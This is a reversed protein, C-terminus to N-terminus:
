RCVAARPRSCGARSWDGRRRREPVAGDAPGALRAHHQALVPLRHPVVPLVASPGAHPLRHGHRGPRARRHDPRARAAPRTRGAATRRAAGGRESAREGNEGTAARLRRRPSGGGGTLQNRQDAPVDSTAAHHSLQLARIYAIIRWRDEVPVQSRYDPMAGFGNTIVDFFYGVPLNRLRDTHYNAAQRFGRQVVMGNGEGTRGHCPSCFINYREEGRDLDAKTIPFPFTTAPQGNVKGEYLLPDDHLQGRAVTGEVLPQASMGKPLVSSAELPDYRPADHMDQRCGALFPLLCLLPLLCFASPLLTTRRKAATKILM